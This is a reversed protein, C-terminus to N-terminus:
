LAITINIKFWAFKIKTWSAKTMVSTNGLISQNVKENEKQDHYSFIVMNLIKFMNRNGLSLVKKLLYSNHLAIDSFM